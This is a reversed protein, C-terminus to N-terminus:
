KAAERRAAKAHKAATKGSFGRPANERGEATDYHGFKSYYTKGQKCPCSLPGPMM